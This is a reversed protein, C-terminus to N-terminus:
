QAILREHYLTWISIFGGRSKPLGKGNHMELFLRLLLPNDLQDSLSRDHYTLEEYSFNPKRKVKDQKDNIYKNWAGEVEVKNLPKLWYCSRAIISEERSKDSSNSYVLDEYQAPAQPLESRTNVRWSLVIKLHGGRNQGLFELISDFLKQSASHENGGDILIILPNEQTYPLFETRDPAVDESLNLRLRIEEWLNGTRFRNGRLLLTDIGRENYQRSMEVLLNTKGSGAEAALFFLGARAGVWSRLEIEADQREQYIGKIIKKESLLSQLTDENSERLMAKWKDADLDELGLPERREKERIMLNLQELVKENSTEGHLSEPSFFVLRSGTNQEYVMMKARDSVERIFYEGPLIFFPVLSLQNGSVDLAAVNTKLKERLNVQTIDNGMLRWSVTKESSVITYNRCFAMQVLLEKLLVSYTSWLQDCQADSPVTGHGLYHNRFRILKGIATDGTEGYPATEIAHYYAPLEQVFWIHGSENLAQVASRMFANWHGFQPRYLFNKFARNIEGLKLDSNFYESATLLGLYKLYNLFTEKLLHLKKFGETELLARRYTHALFYPYTDMIIRDWEDHQADTSLMLTNNCAPCAGEEAFFVTQTNLDCDPTNCRYKGDSLGKWEEVVLGAHQPLTFRKAGWVVEIPTSISATYGKLPASNGATYFVIDNMANLGEVFSLLVPEYLNFIDRSEDESHVTGHGVYRNRFNILLELPTNTVEVTQKKGKGDIVTNRITLRKIKAQKNNKATVGFATYWAPAASTPAALDLASLQGAIFSSWLGHSDKETLTACVQETAEDLRNEDRALQMLTFGYLRLAGLLVDSILHLRKFYHPTSYLLFLPRAIQAPLRDIGQAFQGAIHTHRQELEAGCGPCFALQIFSKEFFRCQATTCSPLIIPLM